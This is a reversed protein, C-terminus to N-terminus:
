SALIQLEKAKQVAQTRRKVDLKAYLNSTHTKVTSLAIFLRDAIEQNSYGQAILELVEYERKNLKIKQLNTQNVTFTSPPPVEKKRDKMLNLGVWVGVGTFITAVVSTYFEASFNGILYRYEIFKLLAIVMAM